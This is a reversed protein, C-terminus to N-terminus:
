KVRYLKEEQRQKLKISDELWQEVVHFSTEMWGGEERRSGEPYIAHTAEGFQSRALVSCHLFSIKKDYVGIKSLAWILFLIQM